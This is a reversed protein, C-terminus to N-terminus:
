FNICEARTLHQIYHGARRVDFGTIQESADRGFVFHVRPLKKKFMVDRTEALLPFPKNDSGIIVLGDAQREIRMVHGAALQYAGVYKDLDGAHLHVQPPEISVKVTQSSFLKWSGHEKLWVETSRFSDHATQGFTLFTPNDSFSTVAM